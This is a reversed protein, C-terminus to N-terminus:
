QKTGACTGNQYCSSWEGVFTFAFTGNIVTSTATLTMNVNVTTGLPPGNEVCQNPDFVVTENITMSGDINITYNFKLVPCTLNTDESDYVTATGSGETQTVIVTSTDQTDDGCTNNTYTLVWTWTGAINPYTDVNNNSPCAILLFFCVVLSLMMLVNKLKM